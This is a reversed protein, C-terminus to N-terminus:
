TFGIIWLMQEALSLWPRPEVPMWQYSYARQTAANFTKPKGAGKQTVYIELAESLTISPESGTFVGLRTNRAFSGNGQRLLSRGILDPDTM